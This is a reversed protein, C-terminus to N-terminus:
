RRAGPEPAGSSIERHCKTGQCEADPEAVGLLTAGDAYAVVGTRGLLVEEFVVAAVAHLADPAVTRGALGDAVRGVGPPLAQILSRMLRSREVRARRQIARPM